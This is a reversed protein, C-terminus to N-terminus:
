VAPCCVDNAGCKLSMDVLTPGPSGALPVRDRRVGLGERSKILKIEKLKAELPKGSPYEVPPQAQTHGSVWFSRTKAFSAQRVGGVGGGQDYYVPSTVFSLM